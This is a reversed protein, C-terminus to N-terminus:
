DFRVGAARHAEREIELVAGEKEAPVVVTVVKWNDPVGQSRRYEKLVRETAKRVNEATVGFAEAVEVRKRGNVLVEFAQARTNPGMRTQAVANNFQTRTLRYITTRM